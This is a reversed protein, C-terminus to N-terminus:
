GTPTGADNRDALGATARSRIQKGWAAKLSKPIKTTLGGAKTFALEQNFDGGGCGDSQFTLKVDASADIVPGPAGERTVRFRVPGSDPDVDHPLPLSVDTIGEERLEGKACKGRACLEYSAGRLDGYGEHAFLVGIGAVTGVGACAEARSCGSAAVLLAPVGLFVGLLVSPRM